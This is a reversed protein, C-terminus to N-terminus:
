FAASFSASLHLRGPIAGPSRSGKLYHIANRGPAHGCHALLSTHIIAAHLPELFDAAPLLHFFGLCFPRTMM